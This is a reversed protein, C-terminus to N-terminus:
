NSFCHKEVPSKIECKERSLVSLGLCGALILYCLVVGMGVHARKGRASVSSVQGSRRSDSLLCPFHSHILSVQCAQATYMCVYMSMVQYPVRGDVAHRSVILRRPTSHLPFSLSFFFFFPFFFFFFLSVIIWIFIVGAKSRDVMQKTSLTGLREAQRHHGRPCIVEGEGVCDIQCLALQCPWASFSSASTRFLRYLSMARGIRM